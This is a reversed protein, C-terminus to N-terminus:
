PFPDTFEAMMKGSIANKKEPYNLTIVGVNNIAKFNVSGNGYARFEKKVKEVDIPQFDISVFRKSTDFVKQNMQHNTKILKLFRVSM